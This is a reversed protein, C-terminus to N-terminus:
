LGEWPKTVRRKEGYVSKKYHVVFFFLSAVGIMLMTLSISMVGVKIKDYNSESLLVKCIIPYHLIQDKM